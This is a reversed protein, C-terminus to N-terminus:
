ITLLCLRAFWCHENINMLFSCSSKRNEVVSVPYGGTSNIDTSCTTLPDNYTRPTLYVFFKHSYAM